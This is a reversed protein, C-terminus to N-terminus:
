RTRDTGYDFSSDFSVQDGNRTFEIRASRWVQRREAMSVYLEDIITRLADSIAARDAHGENRLQYTIRVGDSQITLVGRNWSPPSCAVMEHVLRTLVEGMAELGAQEPPAAASSPAPLSLLSVAAAIIHLPRM